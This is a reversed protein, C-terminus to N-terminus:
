KYAIPTIHNKDLLMKWILCLFLPPAGPVGFHAMMDNENTMSTWKRNEEEVAKKLQQKYEQSKPQQNYFEQM